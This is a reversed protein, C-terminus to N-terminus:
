MLCSSAWSPNSFIISSTTNINVNNPFTGSISIDNAYWFYLAGDFTIPIGEPFYFFRIVFGVLMIIGLCIVVNRSFIKSKSEISNQM